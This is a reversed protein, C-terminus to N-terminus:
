ECKKNKKLFLILAGDGGYQKPARGWEAVLNQGEGSLFQETADRLVPEGDSSHLGKGTIVLLTKWGQYQANQLFYSLKETAESRQCGHLDLSADPTLKGQKLQKMRRPLVMPESDDEPFHEKFRVPFDGMAELFLDQDNQEQTIETMDDTPFFNSSIVEEHDDDQTLQQVGLTAMEKVFSGMVNKRTPIKEINKQPTGLPSSVAFGKLNGFPDSNFECIKSKVMKKKKAM